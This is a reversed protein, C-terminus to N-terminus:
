NNYFSATAVFHDVKSYRSTTFDSVEAVEPQKLM